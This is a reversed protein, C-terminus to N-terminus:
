GVGDERHRGVYARVVCPGDASLTLNDRDFEDFKWTINADNTVSIQIVDKPIFSLRHSYKLNTVASNFVIEFFKFEGRSIVLDDFADQLRQLADRVDDFTKLNSLQLNLRM